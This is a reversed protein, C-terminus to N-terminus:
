IAPTGARDSEDANATAEKRKYRREVSLADQMRDGFMDNVMDIGPQLTELCIDVLADTEENNMNVEDRSMQARKSYDTNPIGWLTAFDNQVRRADELLDTVIYNQKVDQFFLDWLKQGDPGYLKGRGGGAVAPQGQQVQDILAKFTAAAAKNNSIFAYAIKSNTLCAMVDSQIMALKAAAEYCTALAGTYDPQLVILGARREPQNYLTNKYLGIRYRGNEQNSLNPNAVLIDAPGYFVNRGSLTCLVPIIGYRSPIVGVFGREFLVYQFFKKDWNEPVTFKFASMARKLLYRVHYRTAFDDANGMFSPTNYSEIAAAYNYFISGDM